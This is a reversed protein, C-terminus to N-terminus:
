IRRLQPASSLQDLSIWVSSVLTLLFLSPLSLPFFAQKAANFKNPTGHGGHRRAQGPGAPDGDPGPQGPWGRRRRLGPSLPQSPGIGSCPRTGPRNHLWAERRASKPSPHLTSAGHRTVNRFLPSKISARYRNLKSWTSTM